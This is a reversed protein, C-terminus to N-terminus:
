IWQFDCACGDVSFCIQSMLACAEEQFDSSSYVWVNCVYFVVANQVYVLIM